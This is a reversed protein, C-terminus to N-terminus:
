WEDLQSIEGHPLNGQLWLDIIKRAVEDANKFKGAKRSARFQEVSGFDTPSKETLVNPMQTDVFGPSIAHLNVPYEESAQELAVSRTFMDLAAKTSGYMSMGRHPATAAGSTINLIFKSVRMKDANRIFQSAMLVPAIFNVQVIKEIAGSEAQHIPMVPEIIGANNILHISECDDNVHDFITKILQPIKAIESLDFSLTHVRCNKMMAQHGIGTIENRAVLFLVHDPHLLYQAFAKGLGKSAGTIIFYKKM